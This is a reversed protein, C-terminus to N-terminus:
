HYQPSADIGCGASYLFLRSKECPLQSHRGSAAFKDVEVALMSDSAADRHHEVATQHRHAVSDARRHCSLRFYYRM